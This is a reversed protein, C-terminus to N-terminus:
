KGRKGDRSVRVRKKPPSIAALVEVVAVEKGKRKVVEKKVVLAAVEKKREGLVVVEKKREGLVVM